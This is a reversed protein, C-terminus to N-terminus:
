HIIYPWGKINYKDKLKKNTKQLSYGQDLLVPLVKKWEMYLREKSIPRNNKRIKPRKRRSLLCRWTVYGKKHIEKAAEKLIKNRIEEAQKSHFEGSYITKALDANVGDLLYMSMSKISFGKQKLLRAIEEAQYMISYYDEPISYFNVRRYGRTEAEAYARKVIKNAKDPYKIKRLLGLTCFLNIYKNVKSQDREVIKALYRNSVFFMANGEDDRLEPTIHANAINQIMNLIDTGHRILQKLNPVKDLENDFNLFRMNLQYKDMEDRVWQSKELKIGYTKEIENIAQRMNKGRKLIIDLLDIGRRDVSCNSSNCFYKYRGNQRSIVASPNQDDHFICNFNEGLEVDLKLYERIDQQKMAEFFSELNDVKKSNEKNINCNRYDELTKNESIFANILEKQATYNRNFYLIKVFFPKNMDKMHFFGPVRLAHSINTIQTDAKDFHDILIKQVAPFSEVKGDKILWYAHLGKKTEVIFAPKVKLNKLYELLEQKQEQMSKENESDVELDLDVFHAKVEQVNKEKYGFNPKFFVANGNKNAENIYDMKVEFDKPENINVSVKEPPKGHHILLFNVRGNESFCSLFEIM